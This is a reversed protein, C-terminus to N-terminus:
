PQGDLVWILVFLTDQLLSRKCGACSATVETDAGDPQMSSRSRAWQLWNQLREDTIQLWGSSHILVAPSGAVAHTCSV